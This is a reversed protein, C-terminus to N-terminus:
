DRSNEPHAPSLFPDPLCWRDSRAPFHHFSLLPRCHLFRIHRRSAYQPWNTRHMLPLSNRCTKFRGPLILYLGTDPLLHFDNLFLSPHVLTCPHRYCYADLIFHRSPFYQSGGFNISTNRVPVYVKKKRCGGVEYLCARLGPLCPDFMM